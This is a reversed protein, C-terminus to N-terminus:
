TKRARTSRRGRKRRNDAMVQRNQDAIQRALQWFRKGAAVAEEFRAVEEQPVYISGSRGDLKRFTLYTHPGHPQGKQCRCNPRGCTRTTTSLTGQIMVQALQQLEEINEKSGSM